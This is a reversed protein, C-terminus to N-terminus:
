SLLVLASVAITLVGTGAAGLMVMAAVLVALIWVPFGGRPVPGAKAARREEAVARWEAADSADHFWSASMLTDAGGRRRAVEPVDPAPSATLVGSQPLPMAFTSDFPPPVSRPPSRPPITSIASQPAIDLMADASALDGDHDKDFWPDTYRSHGTSRGVIDPTLEV